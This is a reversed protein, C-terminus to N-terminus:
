LEEPSNMRKTNSFSKQFLVKNLIISHFRSDVHIILNYKIPEDDMKRIDKSINGHRNRWNEPGGIYFM